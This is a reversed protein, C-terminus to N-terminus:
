IDIKSKSLIYDCWDDINDGNLASIEKIIIQSNITKINNKLVDLRTRVYSLLDIKNILCLNVNEYMYPFKLPKDEGETISSVIVRLSEGLDFFAPSLLNGINEIFLISNDKINMKKIAEFIMEADLYGGSDTNIQLCEVGLSNFRQLDSYTQLDSAIVYLKDRLGIKKITSYLITTKGAGPSSMLNVVYVSHTKFYDRNQKAIKLNEIILEKDIEIKKQANYLAETPICDSTYDNVSKKISM